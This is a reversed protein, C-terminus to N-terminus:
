SLWCLSLYLYLQSSECSEPEKYPNTNKQDQDFDQRLKTWAALTDPALCESVKKAIARQTKSWTLPKQLNKLFSTGSLFILCVSPASPTKGPLCMTLKNLAKLCNVWRMGLPYTKFTNQFFGDIYWYPLGIFSGKPNKWLKNEIPRGCVQAVWQSNKWFTGMLKVLVYGTPENLPKRFLSECQNLKVM